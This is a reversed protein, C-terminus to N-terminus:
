VWGDDEDGASPVCRGDEVGYCGAEGGVVVSGM